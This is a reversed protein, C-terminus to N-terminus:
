VREVGLHECRSEMGAVHQVELGLRSQKSLSWLGQFSHLFSWLFQFIMCADVHTSCAFDKTKRVHEDKVANFGHRSLLYLLYSVNSLLV